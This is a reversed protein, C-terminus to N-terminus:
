RKKKVKKGSQKKDKKKSNGHKSAKKEPKQQKTEKEPEASAAAEMINIKTRLKDAFEDSKKLDASLQANAKELPSVYTGDLVYQKGDRTLSARITKEVNGDMPVVLGFKGLSLITQTLRSNFTWLTEGLRYRAGLVEMVLEQTPTLKLENEDTM